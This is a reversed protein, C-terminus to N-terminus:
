ARPVKHPIAAERAQVGVWRCVRCLCVQGEQADTYRCLHLGATWCGLRRPIDDRQTAPPRNHLDVGLTKRFFLPVHPPESAHREHSFDESMRQEIDGEPQEPQEGESEGKDHSPPPKASVQPGYAQVQFVDILLQAFPSLSM